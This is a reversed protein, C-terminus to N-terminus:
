LVGADCFARFDPGVERVYKEETFIGENFVKEPVDFLSGFNLTLEPLASSSVPMSTALFGFAIIAVRDYESKVDQLSPIYGEWKFFKLNKELAEQYTELLLNLNNRRLTPVISTFLFFVIDIIFSNIHAFQWDIFKVSVPVDGYETFKWMMNSSWLDGHNYAEFKKDYTFVRKIKDCILDVNDAIRQGVDKWDPEWKTRIANSLVELASSFFARFTKTDNVFMNHGRDDNTLQGRSLLIKSMAHFRALTRLVFQAQQISQWKTRDITTYGEFSLDEMVICSYPEYGLCNSWIKDRKDDFEDMLAGMMPLIITYVKCEIPFLKLVGITYDMKGGPIEKKVIMSFSKRKGGKLLLTIKVRHVTSLFNEGLATALSIETDLVVSPKQDAFYKKLLGVLWTTDVSCQEGAEVM